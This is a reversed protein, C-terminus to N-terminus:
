SNQPQRDTGTSAETLPTDSTLSGVNEASTKSSEVTLKELCSLQQINPQKQCKDIVEFKEGITAPNYEPREESM